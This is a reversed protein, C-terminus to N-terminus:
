GPKKKGNDRVGVAAGRQATILTWGLPIISVDDDGLEHQEVFEERIVAVMRRVGEETNLAHDTELVRAIFGIEGGASIACPIYYLWREAM